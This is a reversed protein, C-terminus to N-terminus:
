CNIFSNYGKKGKKIILSDDSNFDNVGINGIGFICLVLLAVGLVSTIALAVKKNIKKIKM